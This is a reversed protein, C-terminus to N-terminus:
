ATAMIFILATAEDEDLMRAFMASQMVRQAEMEKARAIDVLNAAIRDAERQIEGAVFSRLTDTYSKAAGIIVPSLDIPQPIPAVVSFSDVPKELQTQPQDIPEDKAALIREVAARNDGESEVTRAIHKIGSSNGRRKSPAKYDTVRGTAVFTDPADQDFIYNGFVVQSDDYLVPSDNFFLEVAGVMGTVAVGGSVAFVDPEAETFDASGSIAVAGSASVSDQESETVDMYGGFVVSGGDYYVLSDNYYIANQPTSM